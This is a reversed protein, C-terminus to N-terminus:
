ITQVLAFEKKERGEAGVEEGEERRAGHGPADAPLDAARGRQDPHGAHTALARGGDEPLELGGLGGRWSIGLGIM